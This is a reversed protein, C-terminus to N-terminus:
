RACCRCYRACGRHRPKATSSAKRRAAPPRNGGESRGLGHLRAAARHLDRSALELDQRGHEAPRVRVPRSGLVQLFAGARRRRRRHPDRPSVGARLRCRLRARARRQRGGRRRGGRRAGPVAGHRRDAARRRDARQIHRARFAGDRRRPHRVRPRVSCRPFLRDRPDAVVRRALGQDHVTGTRGASSTRSRRACAGCPGYRSRLASSWRSSGWSTSRRRIQAVAKCCRSSRSSSRTYPSSPSPLDTCRGRRGMRSRCCDNRRSVRRLCSDRSSWRPACSSSASCSTWYRPEGCRTITGCCSSRPSRPSAGCWSGASISCCDWRRAPVGARFIHSRYDARAAHSIPAARSSLAVRHFLGCRAARRSAGRDGRAAVNRRTRDAQRRGAAAHGAARLLCGRALRADHADRRCARRGGGVDGNGTECEGARCDRCSRAPRAAAQARRRRFSARRARTDIGQHAAAAVRARQGRGSRGEGLRADRLLVGNRARCPLRRVPPAWREIQSM